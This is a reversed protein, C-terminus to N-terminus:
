FLQNCGEGFYLGGQFDHGIKIRKWLILLAGKFVIDVHERGPSEQCRYEAKHWLSHGCQLGTARVLKDGCRPLLWRPLANANLFSPLVTVCTGMSRKPSIGAGCDM